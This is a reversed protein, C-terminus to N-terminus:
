VSILPSNKLNKLILEIFIRTHRTSCITKELPVITTPVELVASIGEKAWADGIQQISLPAPSIHWNSPLECYEEIQLILNKPVEACIFSYAQLIDDAGLYVLMELAALSLSGATYIIRTGGTNWRGGYRFAGEGDFATAAYKTKCIRFVQRM